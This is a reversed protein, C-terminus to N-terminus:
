IREPNAKNDELPIRSAPPSISWGSEELALILEQAAERYDALSPKEWSGPAMRRYSRSVADEPLALISPNHDALDAM